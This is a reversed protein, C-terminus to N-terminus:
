QDSISVGPANVIVVISACDDLIYEYAPTGSLYSYIFWWLQKM